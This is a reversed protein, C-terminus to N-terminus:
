WDVSRNVFLVLGRAGMFAQVGTIEKGQFLARIAPLQQGTAIGPDYADNDAAVFMDATIREGIAAALPARFAYAAVASIVFAVGLFLLIRKM